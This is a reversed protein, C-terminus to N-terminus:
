LYLIAVFLFRVYLMVHKKKLLIFLNKNLRVSSYSVLKEKEEYEQKCAIHDQIIKM